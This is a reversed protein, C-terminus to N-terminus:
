SPRGAHPRVRLRLHEVQRIEVEDGSAVTQEPDILEAAWLEGAVRVTGRPSLVSQAIAVRGVLGEAGTQVPRRRARLASGVVFLFLGATGAAVAAVLPISVRLFDPTGPSNFLVLGGVILSALGVAALAGHTPAKIELLFLVFATGVFILGFWNVSLIGLGYAALSLCVVGIFGAVWGGPSSIEMLIAQAGVALLLFVLNPNTLAQLLQEIWTPEIVVIQSDRTQLHREVDDVVVIHGDLQSLVGEVDGAIVDILGADLAEQASAARADDIAAEAMAVAASGRRTALSRVTAKLIEKEKAELTSGLDEGQGGVPSAAGIATEPAMAAAHGALTIVTGASGAIAGPPAVYVIVPVRSARIAQVMRNMTDIAGGPTDIQFVLAEAGDQSAQNIGRELYDAMGPTIPGDARLLYVTRASQASATTSALSCIALLVPILIALSRRRWRRTSM